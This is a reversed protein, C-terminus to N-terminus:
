RNAQKAWQIAQSRSSAGHSIMLYVDDQSYGRKQDERIQRDMLEYREEEAQQANDDAIMEEIALSMEDVLMEGLNVHRPRFGNISKYVNHYCECMEEHATLM